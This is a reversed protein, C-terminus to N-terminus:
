ILVLQETERRSGGPLFSFVCGDFCGAAGTPGKGRDAESHGFSNLPWHKTFTHSESECPGEFCSKGRPYCASWQSCSRCYLKPKRSSGNFCFYYYGFAEEGSCESTDHVCRTLSLSCMRNRRKRAAFRWSVYLIDCVFHRDWSFRVMGSQIRSSASM